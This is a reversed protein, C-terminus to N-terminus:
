FGLIDRRYLTLLTGFLIFTGLGGIFWSRLTRKREEVASDFTLSPFLLRAVSTFYLVTACGIALLWRKNGVSEGPVAGLLAPVFGMAIIWFSIEAPPNFLKNQTRYPQLVRLIGRSLGVAIERSGPATVDILARSYLVSDVFRIRVGLVCRSSIVTLNYTIEETRDPLKLSFYQAISDFKEEGDAEKISLSTTSSASQDVVLESARRRFYAELQELTDKTVHLSPLRVQMSFQTSRVDEPMADSIADSM